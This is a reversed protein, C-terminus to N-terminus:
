KAEKFRVFRLVGDKVYKLAVIQSIDKPYQRRGSSDRWLLIPFPREDCHFSDVGEPIKDANDVEWLMAFHGNDWRLEIDRNFVRGKNLLDSPTCALFDMRERREQICIAPGLEFLLRYFEGSQLTKFLGHKAM